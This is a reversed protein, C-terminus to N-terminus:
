KLGTTPEQAFGLTSAGTRRSRRPPAAAPLIARSEKRRSRWIRSVSSHLTSPRSLLSVVMHKYSQFLVFHLSKLISDLIVNSRPPCYAPNAGPIGNGCPYLQSTRQPAPQAAPTSSGRGTQRTASSKFSSGSSTSSKNDQSTKSITSKSITTKSIQTSSAPKVTSSDVASMESPQRTIRRSTSKRNRPDGDEEDGVEEETKETTSVVSKPPAKSSTASPTPTPTAAFPSYDGKDMKYPLCPACNFSPNPSLLNQPESKTKKWYHVILKPHHHDLQDPQTNCRRESV